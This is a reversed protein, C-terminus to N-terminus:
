LHQPDIYGHKPHKPLGRPNPVFLKVIASDHRMTLIEDRCYYDPLLVGMSGPIFWMEGEELYYGVLLPSGRFTAAHLSESKGKLMPTVLLGFASYLRDSTWIQAVTDGRSRMEQHAEKMRSLTLAGEIVAEKSPKATEATAASWGPLITVMMGSLLGTFNRRNLKM